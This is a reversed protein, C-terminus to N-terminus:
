QGLTYLTFPYLKIDEHSIETTVRHLSYNKCLTKQKYYLSEEVLIMTYLDKPQESFAPWYSTLPSHNIVLVGSKEM